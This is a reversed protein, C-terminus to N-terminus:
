TTTTSSSSSSSGRGRRKSAGYARGLGPIQTELVGPIIDEELMRKTERLERVRQVVLWGAGGVAAIALAWVWWPLAIGGKQAGQPLGGLVPPAGSPPPVPGGSRSRQQPYTQYFHELQQRFSEARAAIEDSTFNAGFKALQSSHPGAYKDYFPLWARQYYGEWAARYIPDAVHQDIDRNLPEASASQMQRMKEFTAAPATYGTGAGQIPAYYMPAYRHGIFHPHM